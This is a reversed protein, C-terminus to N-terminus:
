VSPRSHRSRAAPLHARAIQRYTCASGFWYAWQSWAWCHWDAALWCPSDRWAATSRRPPQTPRIHICLAMWAANSLLCWLSQRLNMWQLRVAHRTQSPHRCAVPYALTGGPTCGGRPSTAATRVKSALPPPSVGRNRGPQWGSAVVAPHRLCLLIIVPPGRATGSDGPCGYALVGALAYRVRKGCPCDRRRLICTMGTSLRKLGVATASGFRMAESARNWSGRWVGPLGARAPPQPPQLQLPHLSYGPRDPRSLRVACGLRCRDRM